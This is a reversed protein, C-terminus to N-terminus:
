DDKYPLPANKFAAPDYPKVRSPASAGLVPLYYPREHKKDSPFFKPSRDGKDCPCAYVAGENFVTGSDCCVTCM